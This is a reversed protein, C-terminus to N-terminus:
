ERLPEISGTIVNDGLVPSELEALLQLGDAGQGVQSDETFGWVQIYATAAVPLELVAFTGITDTHALQDHRVPLESGTDLYYTQAGELHDPTGSTSSVTAIVYSVERDQCDRLAGALVGTGETRNIGIIAPLASAIGESIGNITLSQETDNPDFYQNLLFTDLFNDATLKFGWRPGSGAPLTLQYAGDLETPGFEDVVTQYDIGEFVQVSGGPNPDGNDAFAGLTGTLNIEVATVVDDSPQGLCTWDAEGVEKGDVNAMAIQPPVIFGPNGGTSADPDDPSDSTDDGGGGCGIALPVLLGLAHIPRM